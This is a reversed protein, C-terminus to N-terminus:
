PAVTGRNCPAAAPALRDFDDAPVDLTFRYRTCDDRTPALVVYTDHVETITGTLTGADDTALTVPDGVTLPTDDHHQTCGALLLTAVAFTPLNM